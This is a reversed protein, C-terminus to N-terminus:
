RSKKYSHYNSIYCEISNFPPDLIYEICFKEVRLAERVEEVKDVLSDVLQTAQYSQFIIYMYRSSGFYHSWKTMFVRAITM